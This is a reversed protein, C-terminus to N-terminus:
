RISGALASAGNYLEGSLERQGTFPGTRMLPVIDRFLLQDSDLWVGGFRALLLYRVVDSRDASTSLARSAGSYMAPLVM